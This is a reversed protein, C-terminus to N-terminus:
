SEGGKKNLSPSIAVASVAVSGSILIATICMLGLAVFFIVTAIIGISLCVSESMTPVHESISSSARDLTRAPHHFQLAKMADYPIAILPLYPGSLGRKPICGIFYLCPQWGNCYWVICVRERSCVIFDSSLRTPQIHIVLLLLEQQITQFLFPESTQRANVSARRSLIVITHYQM